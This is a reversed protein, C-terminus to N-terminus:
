LRGSQCDTMAQQQIENSTNMVFPGQAAIPENLPEGGMILVSSDSENVCLRLFSGGNNRMVALDQPGLQLSKGDGEEGTLVQVSVRRVFEICNHDAPFPVDIEAGAHPLTMDWMQVPSFTKAAGRIEHLEDAIIRANALPADSEVPVNISPIQDKLIPQCRPKTM